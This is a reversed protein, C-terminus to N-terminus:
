PSPLAAAPVSHWPLVEVDRHRFRDDGGYILFTRLSTVLEDRRDLEQAFRELPRMADPTVTRGSKIEVLTARAGDLIILDVELGRADRRFFLDLPENRHIRAKYAEAVVWTEFIAGRLPHTELQEPTRIGLLYCVLGTDLFYFKPSKIWRKGLNHAFPKLRFALFTTELVSIWAKVTKQDVGCDNALSSLNLLQGTRGAALALFTQFATLDGVNLVQRVDREVYTAVYSAMWRHPPLSGAIIPPYGGRLIVDFLDDAEPDAGTEEYALPALHLIATRGALSQSISSLLGFHQSGTLIFRGPRADEDVLVQLYSLLEPVRQIEDLVAGESVGALFGRPDDLACARVDPAELNVYTKEGFVARCLTTKGAQRPGTLTVVPFHRAAELLHPELIRTFM